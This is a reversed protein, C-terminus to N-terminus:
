VSRMLGGDVRLNQGNIHAGGDSALFAMTAAVAEVTGYRQMPVAACREDKQPQSRAQRAACRCYARRAPDVSVSNTGGLVNAARELSSRALGGRM